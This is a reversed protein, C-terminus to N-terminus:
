RSHSSADARGREDTETMRILGRAYARSGLELLFRDRWGYLTSVGIFLRDAIIQYRRYASRPIAPAIWLERALRRVAPESARLADEILTLWLVDSSKERLLVAGATPDALPGRGGARECSALYHYGDLSDARDRMERYRNLREMAAKKLTRCFDNGM